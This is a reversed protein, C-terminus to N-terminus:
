RNRKEKEIQNEQKKILKINKKYYLILIPIIIWVSLSTALPIGIYGIKKSLIINLIINCIVSTFSIFIVFKGKELCYLAKIYLDRISIGAIGIFYMVLTNSTKILSESGFAGRFYVLSVIQKSFLICILTLPIYFMLIYIMGKKIKNNFSTYKKEVITKSINPYLVYLFGAAIILSVTKINTAYSLTSVTGEGFYSAFIKDFMSNADTIISSLFVPFLINIFVLVDKKFIKLNYKLGKKKCIVALILFYMFNAILYGYSLWIYNIYFAFIISIIEIINIILYTFQSIVHSKKCRLYESLINAIGLFLTGFIIPNILAKTYKLQESGFGPAFIHIIEKAFLLIIIGIFINILLIFNIFSSAYENERGKKEAIYYGKTFAQYSYLVIGLIIVPISIAMQYADSIISTGYYKALFINKIFGLFKAIFLLCIVILITKSSKLEKIIKVIRNKM